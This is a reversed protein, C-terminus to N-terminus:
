GGGTEAGEEGGEEGPAFMGAGPRYGTSGMGSSRVRATGPGLVSPDAAGTIADRQRMMVAAHQRATELGRRREDYVDKFCKPVTMELDAVLILELGNWTIPITETPTFTALPFDQLDRWQWRKKTAGLAGANYITGPPDDPHRDIHTEEIQDLFEQVVPNAALEPYDRPSLKGLLEEVQVLVKSRQSKGKAADLIAAGLRALIDDSTQTEEPESSEAAHQIPPRWGTHLRELHAKMKDSLPKKAKATKAM